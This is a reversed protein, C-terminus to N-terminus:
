TYIWTGNSRFTAQFQDFGGVSKTISCSTILASGSFYNDSDEYYSLSTLTRSGGVFKNRVMVMATDAQDYNASVQIEYMETVDEVSPNADGIATTDWDEGTMNISMSTVNTMDNSEVRLKGATYDIRAM